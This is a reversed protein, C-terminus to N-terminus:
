GYHGVAMLSGSFSSSEPPGNAIGANVALVKFIPSWM